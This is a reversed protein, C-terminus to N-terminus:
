KLWTSAATELSYVISSHLALPAIEVILIVDWHNQVQKRPKQVNLRPKHESLYEMVILLMIVFLIAAM